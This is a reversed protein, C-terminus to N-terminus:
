PFPSRPFGSLPTWCYLIRGRAAEDGGSDAERVDFATFVFGGGEGMM